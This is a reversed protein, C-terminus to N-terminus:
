DEDAAEAGPGAHGFGSAKRGARADHVEPAVAILRRAMDVTRDVLARAGDHLEVSERVYRM